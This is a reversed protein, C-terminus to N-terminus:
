KYTMQICFELIIKRTHNGEHDDEFWATRKYFPLVADLKFDKFEPFYNAAGCECLIEGVPTHTLMWDKLSICMYPMGKEVDRIANKYARRRQAATIKM